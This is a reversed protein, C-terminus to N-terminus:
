VKPFLNLNRSTLSQFEHVFQVLDERERERERNSRDIAPSSQVPYAGRGLGSGWGDWGAKGMEDATGYRLLFQQHLVIM